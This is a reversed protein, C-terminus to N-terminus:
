TRKKLSDEAKDLYEQATEIAQEKKGSADRKAEQLEERLTDTANQVADTGWSDDDSDSM